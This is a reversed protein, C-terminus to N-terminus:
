AADGGPRSDDMVTTLKAGAIRLLPPVGEVPKGLRGASRTTTAGPTASGCHPPTSRQCSAWPM